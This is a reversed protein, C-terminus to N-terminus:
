QLVARLRDAPTEFGLTKRPRQNLRLAIRNLYAQSFRSLDTGRSAESPQILRPTAFSSMQRRKQAATPDAFRAVSRRNVFAGSRTRFRSARTGRIFSTILCRERSSHSLNSSSLPTGQPAIRVTASTQSLSTSRARCIIASIGCALAPLTFPILLAMWILM